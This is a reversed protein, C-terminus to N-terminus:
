NVQKQIPKMTLPPSQSIYIGLSSFPRYEITNNNNFLKIRLSEIGGLKVKPFFSIMMACSLIAILSATGPLMWRLSLQFFQCFLPRRREPVKNLLEPPHHM